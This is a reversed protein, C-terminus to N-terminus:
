PDVSLQRRIERILMALSGIIRDHTDGSGAYLASRISRTMEASCPLGTDSGRLPFTWQLISEIDIRTVSVTSLWPLPSPALLRAQSSPPEVLGLDTIQLIARIAVRM